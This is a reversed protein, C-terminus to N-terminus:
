IKKGKLYFGTISSPNKMPEKTDVELWKVRGLSRLEAGAELLLNIYSQTPLTLFSSKGKKSEEIAKRVFATPGYENNSDKRRFIPNVYNMNKWDLKISDYGDPRPCPCPDFNFNFEDNLKQYLGPPTLWYRKLEKDSM